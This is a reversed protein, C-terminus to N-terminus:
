KNKKELEELVDDALQKAPEVGLKEEIDTNDKAEKKRDEENVISPTLDERIVGYKEM